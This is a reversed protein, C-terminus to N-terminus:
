IDEKIDQEITPLVGNDKLLKYLFLRGKQTWNTNMKVDPRGDSHKFDVTKSHTYGKGHHQSYLLWQGNQKYQVGLEYLLDNMKQGSMGYDKAIQTITVLSKSKLILDTYDAKPKLEGIIQDKQHNALQLVKKEEQEKIWAKAREIPDDITYSDKKIEKAKFYTEELNDFQEWAKDTDLIKCHRNAGRETWLYLSSAFKNIPLDINNVQSKFERLEKGQLLYFHKGQEFNNKHNNFNNKINNPETNYVEALQETTLIRQNKFEIPVLESM